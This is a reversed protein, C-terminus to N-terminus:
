RLIFNLPVVIQVPAARDPPPPPLPQARQLWAMAEQDLDDHGSSRVLSSSVLRGAGDLAFRMTAVGTFGRREAEPPYHRFRALHAMLRSQWTAAEQGPPASPAAPASSPAPAVPATTEQVPVAPNPPRPVTPRVHAPHPVAPLKVRVPPPPPLPLAVEPTVEAKPPPPPPDPPVDPLPAAEPMPPPVAAVPPPPAAAPPSPEPPAPVPPAAPALDLLLAAQPAVDQIGKPQIDRLLLLATAHLALVVALSAGWRWGPVTEFTTASM